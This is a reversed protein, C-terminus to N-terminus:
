IYNACTDSTVDFFAAPGRLLRTKGQNFFRYFWFAIRKYMDMEPVLPVSAPLLEEVVCVPGNFQFLGNGPTKACGRKEHTAHRIHYKRNKQEFNACNRERPIKTKLTMEKERQPLKQKDLKISMTKM